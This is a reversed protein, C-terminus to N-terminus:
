SKDEGLWFSDDLPENFDDSIWGMGAHQGFVRKKPQEREVILKLNPHDPRTIVIEEGQEALAAIKDFDLIADQYTVSHM